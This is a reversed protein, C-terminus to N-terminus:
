NNGSITKSMVGITKQSPKDPIKQEFEGCWDDKHVPPWVTKPMGVGKVNIATVVQPSRIRCVGNQQGRHQQYYECNQCKRNENNM